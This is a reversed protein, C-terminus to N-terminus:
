RKEGQFLPNEGTADPEDLLHAKRAPSQNVEL